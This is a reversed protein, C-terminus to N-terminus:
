TKVWFWNGYLDRRPKEHRRPLVFFPIMKYSTAYAMLAERVHIMKYSKFRMYDHGAVIGGVRVKDKWYHLDLTFNVFDHGADLYVFDLSGDKFDKVAEMSVKRIITCNYPSLKATATKYAEDYYPQSESGPLPHSQALFGIPYSEIKWSDISYLHLKPNADCLIKSYDGHLVGVEAGVTFGLEAFLAALDPSGMNPIEVMYKHGIKLNYKKVIYDFTNM